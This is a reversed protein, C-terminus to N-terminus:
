VRRCIVNQLMSLLSVRTLSVVLLFVALCANATTHSTTLFLVLIGQFAHSEHQFLPFNIIGLTGNVQPLPPWQLELPTTPLVFSPFRHPFETSIVSFLCLSLAEFNQAM